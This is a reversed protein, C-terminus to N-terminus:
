ITYVCLHIYMRAVTLSVFLCIRLCLVRPLVLPCELCLTHVCLTFSVGCHLQWGEKMREPASGERKRGHCLAKRSSSFFFLLPFFFMAYAHRCFVGGGIEGIGTLIVQNKKKVYVPFSDYDRRVM